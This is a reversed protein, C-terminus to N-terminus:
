SQIYEKFNNIDIQEDNLFVNVNGVSGALDYVRKKILGIIDDDFRSMKFKQFDPKFKVLTYDNKSDMGGKKKYLPHNNIIPEEIENSNNRFTQRYIKGNSSTELIFETSYINTLKAGLGNRGGSVKKLNDNFHSSTFLQSFILQPIYVDEVEHIEIPIGKGNNFVSIQGEEKDINVKIVNMKQDRVKNDVANVFIEDVIKYLAPVYTIERSVFKELEDIIWMDENVSDISGVYSDPRLLVHEVPVVKRYTEKSTTNPTQQKRPSKTVKKSTKTTKSVTM